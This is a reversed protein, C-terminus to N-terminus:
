TKHKSKQKTYRCPGNFREVHDLEDDNHQAVKLNNCAKIRPIIGVPPSWGQGSAVWHPGTGRASSIRRKDGVCWVWAGM